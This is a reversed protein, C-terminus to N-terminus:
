LRQWTASNVKSVNLWVASPTRTEENILIPASPRSVGLWGIAENSDQADNCGHYRAFNFGSNHGGDRGECAVYQLM